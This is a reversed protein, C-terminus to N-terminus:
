RVLLMHELRLAKMMAANNESIGERYMRIYEKDREISGASQGALEKRLNNREAMLRSIRRAITDALYEAEKLNAM